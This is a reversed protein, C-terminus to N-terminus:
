PSDTSSVSGKVFARAAPMRMAAGAIAKAQPPRNVLSLLSGNNADAGCCYLQAAYAVVNPAYVVSFGQIDRWGELYYDLPISSYVVYGEGYPYSFTVWQGPDSRSLLGMSDAPASAVDFYGHSSFNGGDLTTADIIGGPGDALVSNTTLVDVNVGGEDLERVFGTLNGPLVQSADTVNRDHFVLVGGNRVFEFVKEINNLYSETYGGNDPNQVFLVQYQNLDANAIDGVSLPLQDAQLIAIDQGSGAGNAELDYFGVKAPTIVVVEDSSTGDFAGTNPTIVFHYRTGADLNDIIAPSTQALLLVGGQLASCINVNSINEKAYCIKYGEADNSVPPEWTITVGGERPVASVNQPKGPLNKLFIQRTVLLSSVSENDTVVLSVEITKDETL